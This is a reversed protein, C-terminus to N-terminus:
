EGATRNAPAGRRATARALGRVRAGERDADGIDLAGALRRMLSAELRALRGDAYVVEWLLEFIEVRECADFGDRVATTFVWDDLAADFERKVAAILQEATAADLGFRERVIREIMEREDAGVSRDSQAIELLLAVVAIQRRPFPAGVTDPPAAPAQELLAFLRDLM